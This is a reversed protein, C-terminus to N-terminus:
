SRYLEEYTRIALHVDLSGALERCSHMSLMPAGVDVARVGLEASIIPGVTSGCRLDSRSVFAQPEYGVRRCLEAFFAASPGSTAYSQNANTKIVLGRNLRPAHEGDHLDAYSPHIAHAM